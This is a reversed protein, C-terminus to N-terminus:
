GSAGLYKVEDLQLRAMTMQKLIADYIQECNKKYTQFTEELGLLREFESKDERCAKAIRKQLRARQEMERLYCSWSATHILMKSAKAKEEESRISEPICVNVRYKLYNLVDMPDMSLLDNDTYNNQTNNNVMM